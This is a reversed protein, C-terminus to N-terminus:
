GSFIVIGLGDWVDMPLQPLLKPLPPIGIGVNRPIGPELLVVVPDGVRPREKAIAEVVTRQTVPSLGPDEVTPRVRDALPRLREDKSWM